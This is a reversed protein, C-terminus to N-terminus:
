SHHEHRGLSLDSFPLTDLFLDMWSYWCVWALRLTMTWRFPVPTNALLRFSILCADLCSFLLGIILTRPLGLLLYRPALWCSLGSCIDLCWLSRTGVLFQFIPLLGNHLVSSRGRWHWTGPVKLPINLYLLPRQSRSPMLCPDSAARHIPCTRQFHFHATVM